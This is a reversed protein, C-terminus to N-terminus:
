RPPPMRDRGFTKVNDVLIQVDPAPGFNTHGCTIAHLTIPLERNFEGTQEGTSLVLDFTKITRNVQLAWKASWSPKEPSGQVVRLAVRHTKDDGLSALDLRLTLKDLTTWPEKIINARGIGGFWYNRYNEANASLIFANTGDKGAFPVVDGRFTFDDGAGFVFWSNVNTSKNFDERFLLEGLDADSQACVTNLGLALVLVHFLSSRRATPAKPSNM